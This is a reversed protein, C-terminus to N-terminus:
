RVAIRLEELQREVHTEAATLSPENASIASLGNVWVTWTGNPEPRRRMAERPVVHQVVNTTQM